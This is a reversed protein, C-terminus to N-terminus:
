LGIFKPAILGFFLIFNALIINFLNFTGLTKYVAMNTSYIIGENSGKM